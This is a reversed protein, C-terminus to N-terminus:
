LWPDHSIDTISTGIYDKIESNGMKFIDIILDSGMIGTYNRKTIQLLQELIMQKEVILKYENYAKMIDRTGCNINKAIDNSYNNLIYKKIETETKDVKDKINKIFGDNILQSVNNDIDTKTIVDNLKKALEGIAVNFEYNLEDYIKPGGKGCLLNYIEAAGGDRSKKGIIKLLNNYVGVAMNEIGISNERASILLKKIFDDNKKMIIGINKCLEDRKVEDAIMIVSKKLAKRAKSENIPTDRIFLKDLHKKANLVVDKDIEKFDRNQDIGEYFESMYSLIRAFQGIVEHTIYYDIDIELGESKAIELSEYLDGTKYIIKRHTTPCYSNERKCIVLDIREGLNYKIGKAAMRQVFTLVGVDKKYCKTKVFDEHEWKTEHISGLYGVVLDYPSEINNLDFLKLLLNTIITKSFKSCGKKIIELGKVFLDKINSVNFNVKSIHAIATYKKMGLLLAGYLVEEYAMELFKSGSLGLLFENVKNRLIPIIEFTKEVLKTCYEVKTLSPGSMFYQSDFERFHRHNINFYLSDTDGYYIKCGYKETLFKHVSKIYFRGYATVGAALEVMYLPDAPFGVVGYFTNMLVKVTKQRTDYFMVWFGVNKLEERYAEDRKEIPIAALEEARQSYPKLATRIQTRGVKLSILIRPYIGYESELNNHSVTWLDRQSGDQMSIVIHHLKRRKGVEAAVEPDIIATEPSINRDCIISPYLSSFDLAVLPYKTRTKVYQIAFRKAFNNTADEAETAGSTSSELNTIENIKDYHVPGIEEAVELLKHRKKTFKDIYKSIKRLTSDSINRINYAFEYADKMHEIKIGCEYKKLYYDDLKDRAAIIESFTAKPCILGKDPPVVYAGMFKGCDEGRRLSNIFYGAKFSEEKTKSSVKNSDALYLSDVLPMKCFNSKDIAGLIIANKVALQQPRDADERCYKNVEAIELETGHWARRHLEDYPMDEKADIKYLELYFKLSSKESKEQRRLMTRMDILVSGCGNLFRQSVSLEASLKISHSRYLSRSLEALSSPGSGFYFPNIVTAIREIFGDHKGARKLIWPWDYEWDNFGLIFDPELKELTVIFAEILTKEDACYVDVVSDSGGSSDVGGLKRYDACPMSILGIKLIPTNEYYNYYGIGINFISSDPQEPFPVDGKVSRTEIDWSLVKMKQRKILIDKNYSGCKEVNFLTFGSIDVEFQHSIKSAFHRTLGSGVNWWAHIEISNQGFYEKYYGNGLQNCATEVGDFEPNNLLDNIIVTREKSSYCVVKIYPVAVESYLVFPKGYVVSIEAISNEGIGDIESSNLKTKIYSMIKHEFTRVSNIFENPVKILFHPKIGTVIVCAKRGDYLIGHLIMHYKKISISDSDRGKGNIRTKIDMESVTIPYFLVNKEDISKDVLNRDASDCLDIRRPLDKYYKKCTIVRNDVNM